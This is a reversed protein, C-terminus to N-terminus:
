LMTLATPTLLFRLLLKLMLRFILLVCILNKAFLLTMESPEYSQPLALQDELIELSARLGSVVSTGYSVEVGLWVWTGM